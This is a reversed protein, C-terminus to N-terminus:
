PNAILSNTTPVYKESQTDPIGKLMEENTNFLEDMEEFLDNEILNEDFNLPIKSKDRTTILEKAVEANMEIIEGFENRFDESPPILNGNDMPNEEQPFQQPNLPANNPDNDSM